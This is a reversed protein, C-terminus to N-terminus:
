NATITVRTERRVTSKFNAKGKDSKVEFAIQLQSGLYQPFSNATDFVIKWVGVGKGTIKITRGKYEADSNIDFAGSTQFTALNDKIGTVKYTVNVFLEKKIGQNTLELTYAPLKVTFTDNVMLQKNPFNTATPLAGVMSKVLSNIEADTETTDANVTGNADITGNITKGALLDPQSPAEQNNVVTRASVVARSMAIAFGKDASAEATKLDTNDETVNNMEVNEDGSGGTAKAVSDSHMTVQMLVGIKNNISYTHKPLYAQKLVPLHQAHTSIALAALVALTSLKKM